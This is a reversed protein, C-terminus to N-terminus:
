GNITESINQVNQKVILIVQEQFENYIEKTM